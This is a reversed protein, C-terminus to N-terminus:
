LAAARARPALLRDTLEALTVAYAGDPQALVLPLGQRQAAALGEAAPPVVGLLEIGLEGPVDPLPPGAPLAARNIVIAGGVAATVGGARLRELALRAARLCAPDTDITLFVRCAQRMAEVEGPGPYAPLDLVVFETAARLAVVVAAAEEASPEREAEVSQPGLLVRLGFQTTRLRQEIAAATIGGAGEALLDSLDGTTAGRLLASLTGYRGRIEALVVDQGGAALGAACNLALTTSGLGGKAGVFALCRPRDPPRAAGLERVMAQHREVAYRTARVLAPGNIRGTALCDQAGEQVARIALQRDDSASLVLVPLDPLCRRVGALQALGAAGQTGLDLLIADLPTRIQQACAEHLDRAHAFDIDGDDVEDLLRLLRRTSGPEDAILLARVRRQPM